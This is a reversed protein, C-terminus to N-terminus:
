TARIPSGAPRPWGPLRTVPRSLSRELYITDGDWAGHVNAGLAGPDVFRVPPIPLAGARAADILANTSVIDAKNGFALEAADRFANPDRAIAGNVRDSLWRVQLQERVASPGTAAPDFRAGALDGGIRHVDFAPPRVSGPSQLSHM